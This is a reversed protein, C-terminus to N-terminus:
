AAGRAAFAVVRGDRLDLRRGGFERAATAHSALVVTRGLALRRLSAIVEAETAPDLHATPEDLLLLPANKLYARAIAVRQAEGGSLGFGGEGIETELGHPLHAAFDTVRALRAAERVAEDSAAPRAFRINEALTGAFIMPKQGIWATLEALASPVITTIDAGNLLVRGQDPRIFGLLIELITSKGAGSPGVLVLSEGASIRFSVDSLAPGRAPDWTFSVGSFAVSVGSASVHRIAAAPASPPAQPLAALVGASAHAQMRDQYAAAFARLPAFFEPVLLLLFLAPFVPAQWLHLAFGVLAAVMALDLVSSSLFAVRLVRLTRRRLEDAAAGLRVAEDEARGYLVLTAIGRVRDLFRAQLRAMALFQRRAARAAGIGAFAMGAPVLLGALLLALAAWPDVVAAAVLVLAPGLVALGAAPLWRGYFGDLGEIRDIAATAIEGSHQRRLLAPGAELVRAMVAARLRRRGAIGARSAAVEAVYALGARLLALLAFGTLPLAIAAPRGILAHALLAAIAASQGIGCAVGALGLGILPAVLPRAARSEAKLWAADQSPQKSM